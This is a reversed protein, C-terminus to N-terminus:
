LTGLKGTHNVVTNTYTCCLTWIFLFHAQNGFRFQLIVISGMIVYSFGFKVCNELGMLSGLFNTWIALKPKRAATQVARAKLEARFFYFFARIIGKLNQFNKIINLRVVPKKAWVIRNCPICFLVADPVNLVNAGFEQIYCQYYIKDSKTKPM